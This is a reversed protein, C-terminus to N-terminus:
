SFCGAEQMMAYFELQVDADVNTEVIRFKEPHKMAIERMQELIKEHGGELKM